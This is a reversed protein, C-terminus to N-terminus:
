MNYFTYRQNIKLTLTVITKIKIKKVNKWYKIPQVILWFKFFFFWMILMIQKLERSESSIRGFVTM